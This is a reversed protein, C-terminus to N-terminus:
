PVASPTILLAKVAPLSIRTNASSVRGKRCPERRVAHSNCCSPIGTVKDNVTRCTIKYTCSLNIANDHTCITDRCVTVYGVFDTGVHQRHQGPAMFNREIHSGRKGSKIKDRAVPACISTSFLLSASIVWKFSHCNSRRTDPCL